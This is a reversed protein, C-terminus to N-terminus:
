ISWRREEAIRKGKTVEESRFVNGTIYKLM